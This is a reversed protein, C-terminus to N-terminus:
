VLARYEIKEDNDKKRFYEKMGPLPCAVTAVSKIIDTAKEILPIYFKNMDTAAKKRHTIRASSDNLLLRIQKLHPIVENLLAALRLLELCENCKNDTKTRIADVSKTLNAPKPTQFGIPGRTSTSRLASMTLLLSELEIIARDTYSSITRVDHHQVSEGANKIVAPPLHMIVSM